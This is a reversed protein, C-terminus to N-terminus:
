SFIGAISAGQISNHLDWPYNDSQDHNEGSDLRGNNNVDDVYVTFPRGESNTGSVGYTPFVWHKYHEGYVMNVPDWDFMGTGQGNEDVVAHGHPQIGCNSNRWAAEASAHGITGSRDGNCKFGSATIGCAAVAQNAAVEIENVEPKMYTKKM